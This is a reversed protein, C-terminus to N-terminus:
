TCNGQASSHFFVPGIGPKEVSAVAKLPEGRMFLFGKRRFYLCPLFGFLDEGSM